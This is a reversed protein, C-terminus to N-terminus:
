TAFENSLRDIEDKLGFPPNIVFSGSGTMGHEPKASAFTVESRLANPYARELREIMGVHRQQRLIPYWLFIIGVNWAKTIKKIHSPIDSYDSKVEYSPDILMLGRRPNPPCLSHALTFGDCKYCRAAFPSMAVQLASFETPHLEALHIKDHRRLSSAAIVPSGPYATAGHAARTAQLASAFPHDRMFYGEVVSVGKEAEGTKRSADESLDYLGRGAHTEIYTLPKDKRVLYALIWALLVHKHIDALNGAHYIHQYSLM